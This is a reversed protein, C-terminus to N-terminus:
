RRRLAGARLRGGLLGFLAGTMAYPVVSTLLQLEFGFLAGLDTAYSSTGLYSMAGYLAAGAFVALAGALAPRGGAFFGAGLSALALYGLALFAGVGVWDAIRRFVIQDAVAAATVALTFRM